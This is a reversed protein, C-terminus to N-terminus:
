PAAACWGLLVKNKGITRKLDTLDHLNKRVLDGLMCWWKPDSLPEGCAPCNRDVGQHEDDDPKPCNYFSALAHVRRVRHFIAELEALRDAKALEAFKAPYKIAHYLAQEISKAYKISVIRGAGHTVKEWIASIEKREQPLWPGVYISHAHMNTNGAGLEDCFVNGYEQREIGFRREITRFFKKIWLNLQRLQFPEPTRGTNKLTFDLAAIVVRPRRRNGEPPPWHPLDRAKGDREKTKGPNDRWWDCHKCNPNGCDLLKAAALRIRGLMKAFLENAGEPGCKVCYRNGCEYGERFTHGNSCRVEAGLLGCALERQAKHELGRDFMSVAKRIKEPNARRAHPAIVVKGAGAHECALKGEEFYKGCVSCARGILDPVTWSRAAGQAAPRNLLEAEKERERDHQERIRAFSIGGVPKKDIAIPIGFLLPKFQEGWVQEIKKKRTARWSELDIPNKWDFIRPATSM